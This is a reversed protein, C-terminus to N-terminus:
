KRTNKKPSAFRGTELFSDIEKKVYRATGMIKSVPISGNSTWNRISKSSVQLYDALQDATMIEPTIKQPKNISQTNVLSKRLFYQRWELDSLNSKILEFDNESDRELKATITIFSRDSLNQFLYVFRHENILLDIDVDDPLTSLKILKYGKRISLYYRDYKKLEKIIKVINSKNALPSSEVELTVSGILKNDIIHQIEGIPDTM